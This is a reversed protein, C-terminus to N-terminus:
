CAYRQPFLVARIMHWLRSAAIHLRTRLNVLRPQSRSSFTLQKSLQTSAPSTSESTVTTHSSARYRGLRPVNAPHRGCPNAISTGSIQFPDRQFFLPKTNTLPHITPLPISSPLPLLCPHHPPDPELHSALYTPLQHVKLFSCM